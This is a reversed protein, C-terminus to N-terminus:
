VPCAGGIKELLAFGYAVAAKQYNHRPAISNIRNELAGGASALGGQDICAQEIARAEGRSLGSAGAILEPTFSRGARGHQAMRRAFDDTIGVYNDGKYVVYNTPGGALEMPLRGVQSPLSSLAQKKVTEPLPLKGTVARVAEAARDGRAAFKSLLSVAKSGDGVVPLLGLAAIGAAVFKKKWLDLALDRFDGYVVVGSAVHGALYEVSEIQEVRLGADIACDYCDGYKMGAEGAEVKEDGTLDYSLPNSGREFESADGYRDDDPNALTPDSGFELEEADVLGDDDTDAAAPDMDLYFEDGDGVGDDDTDVARPDSVAFEVAAAQLDVDGVEVADHLGDDDTDVNNPDSRGAYTGSGDAIPSGAEEGDSLGDGDSDPYSPDTRYEDGDETRWGITEEEDPLGDSDRDLTVGPIQDVAPRVHTPALKFAALGGLILLLAVLVAATGWIGPRVRAQPREFIMTTRLWGQSQAVLEWGRDKRKERVRDARWRMSRASKAKM